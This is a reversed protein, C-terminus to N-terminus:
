ADLALEAAPVDFTLMAESDYAELDDSLSDEDPRLQHFRVTCDGESIGVIVRFRRHQAAATLAAELGAM